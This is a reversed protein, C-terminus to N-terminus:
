TQEHALLSQLQIGQKPTVKKYVVLSKKIHRKEDWGFTAASRDSHGQNLCPRPCKEHNKETGGTLNRSLEKFSAAVTREVGKGISLEIIVSGNSANIKFYNLLFMNLHVVSSCIFQSWLKYDNKWRLLQMISLNVSRDQIIYYGFM